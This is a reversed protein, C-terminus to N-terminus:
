AGRRGCLISEFGYLAWTSGAPMNRGPWNALPELLLGGPRVARAVVIYAHAYQLSDQENYDGM